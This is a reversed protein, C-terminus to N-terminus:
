EQEAEDASEDLRIPDGFIMLAQSFPKPVMYRDWSKVLWRRRASVGVPVVAAGSKRAMLLIGPQVIGSPGRPGDPTFALRDGNRLVKVAELAAKIGGRGTSGRITRFGFRRFIGNQMEGDRSHSILAWIGEGRLVRTGLLTRGHWTAFIVGGELNAVQELGRVELRISAGLLRVFFVIPGPLLKPRVGRWWDKLRGM